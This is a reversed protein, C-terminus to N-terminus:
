SRRRALLVSLVLTWAFAPAAGVLDLGGGFQTLSGEAFLAIATAVSSVAALYGAVIMWRPLLRGAAAGASVAGVFAAFGFKSMEIAANGGDTLGRVVALEREGAVKYAAGYFLLMGVALVGIAVLGAAFAADGLLQGREDRALWNRVAALFFVFAITAVGAVYMGALIQGRQDAVLAAVERASDSAKPPAGPLFLAIGLLAMAAAGCAAGGRVARKDQV